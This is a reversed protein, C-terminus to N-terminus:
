KNELANLRSLINNIQAQLTGGQSVGVASAGGATRLFSAQVYDTGDSVTKGIYAFLLNPQDTIPDIGLPESLIIQSNSVTYGVGPIQVIGNITVIATNFQYPPSIITEEGTANQFLWPYVDSPLQQTQLSYLHWNPDTEPSQTMPVPTSARATPAYYYGSLSGNQFFRLQNFVTENQGQQWPVPSKFFFNDILAKRVTPITSGDEVAVEVDGAGNIIDHLQNSATITQEVAGSYSTAAM